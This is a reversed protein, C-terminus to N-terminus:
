LVERPDIIRGAIACAAATLASALYVRSAPDGMRGQFNRNSTSLCTEDAALIGKDIGGCLGCSPNLIIGGADLIDQIYGCNIADRYITQSAPSVLLRMGKAIRKDKLIISAAKLDELRGGTCSGIYVQDISVPGAGAVHCVNAPSSPLALKPTMASLDLEMTRDYVPKHDPISWPATDAGQRQIIYKRTIDDPFFLGTKAGGEVVMNCIAFRDDMKVAADNDYFELAQYVFGAEGYRGLLDLIVDKGMLYPPMAKNLDVRVAKPPRLWTKGTVLTYLIDTSGMGTALCGMAGATTTHSDTGLVLMGPNIWNGEVLLQHCIGQYVLCNEINEAKVYDLVDRVINAREITSPPAFHDVTVLVKDKDWIGRELQKLEPLILAFLPDHLLVFDVSVELFDGEKEGTTHQEIIAGSIGQAM